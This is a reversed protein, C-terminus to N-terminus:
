KVMWFGGGVLGGLVVATLIGAGARDGMTIEGGFNDGGPNYNRGGANVDGVSYNM